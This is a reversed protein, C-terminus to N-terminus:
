LELILIRSSSELLCFPLVSRYSLVTFCFPLVSCYSPELSLFVLFCYLRSVSPCIYFGTPCHPLLEAPLTGGQWPPHRSNSDRRGSWFPLARTCHSSRKKNYIYIRHSQWVLAFHCNMSSFVLFKNTGLDDSISLNSHLSQTSRPKQKGGSSHSLNPLLGGLVGSAKVFATKRASPKSQFRALSLKNLFTRPYTASANRCLAVSLYV